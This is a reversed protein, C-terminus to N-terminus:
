NHLQNILIISNLMPIKVVNMSLNGDFKVIGYVSLAFLQMNKYSYCRIIVQMILAFHASLNKKSM